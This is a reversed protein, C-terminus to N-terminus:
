GVPNTSATRQRPQGSDRVKVRVESGPQAQQGVTVEGSPSVVTGPPSPPVVEYTYPPTGGSANIEYTGGAPCPSPDEATQITM